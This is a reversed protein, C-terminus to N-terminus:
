HRKERFSSIALYKSMKREVRFLTEEGLPPFFTTDPNLAALVGLISSILPGNENIYEKDDNALESIPTRSHHPFYGKSLVGQAVNAGDIPPFTAESRGREKEQNDSHISM